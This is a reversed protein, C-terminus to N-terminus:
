FKDRIYEIVDVIQQNTLVDRFQPMQGRGNLLINAYEMKEISGDLPLTNNENQGHCIQCNLQFIYEGNYADGTREEIDTLRAPIANEGCAWLASLFFVSSSM